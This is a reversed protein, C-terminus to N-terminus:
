EKFLLSHNNKQPTPNYKQDLRNAYASVSANRARTFDNSNDKLLYVAKYYFPLNMKGNGYM